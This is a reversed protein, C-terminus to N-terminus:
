ETRDEAKNEKQKRHKHWFNEKSSHSRESGTYIGTFGLDDNVRYRDLWCGKFIYKCIDWFYRFSLMNLLLSTFCPPNWYNSDFDVKPWALFRSM